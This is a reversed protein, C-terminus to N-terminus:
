DHERIASAIGDLSLAVAMLGATIGMISETLSAVTGGAADKGPSAQETVAHAVGWLARSIFYGVDVLNAAELNADSVNPSTFVDHLAAVVPDIKAAM